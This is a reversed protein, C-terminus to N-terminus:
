VFLVAVWPIEILSILGTKDDIAKAPKANSLDLEALM